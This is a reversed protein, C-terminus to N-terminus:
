EGLFERAHVQCYGKIQRQKKCNTHKCYYSDPLVDEGLLEKAHVNCYGKIQRYKNCNTHKCIYYCEVLGNERGHGRCYGGKQARKDCGETKCRGNDLGLNRVVDLDYGM